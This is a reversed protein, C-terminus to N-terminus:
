SVLKTNRFVYNCYELIAINILINELLTLGDSLILYKLVITRNSTCYNTFHDRLGQSRPKVNLNFPDMATRRTQRM